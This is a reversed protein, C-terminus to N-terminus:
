EQQRKALEDRYHDELSAQIATVTAHDESDKATLGEEIVGEESPSGADGVESSGGGTATTAVSVGSSNTGARTNVVARQPDMMSALVAALSGAM